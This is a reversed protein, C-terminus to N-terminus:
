WQKTERQLIAGTQADIWFKLEKGTPGLWTVAWVAPVGFRDQANAALLLLASPYVKGQYPASFAQGEAITRELAEAASIRVYALAQQVAAQEAPSPGRDQRAETIDLTSAIRADEFFVEITEGSPRVFSFHMSLPGAPADHDVPRATAWILVAQADIAAAAQQAARVQTSWPASSGPRGCGTLFLVVLAIAVLQGLYSSTRSFLHYQNDM